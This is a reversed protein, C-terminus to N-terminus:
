LLDELAEQITSFEFAFGSELLKSPYVEQGTLLISAGEGFKLKLVFPPVKFFTPKKLAKGLAKTFAQNTVPKPAVLNFIGGDQKIIFECAKLLDKVHIWSFGQKGDGLIGGLGLKFIPLMESMAGGDGLVVGFRLISVKVGAEKAKLAESEWEKALNGLFGGDFDTSSENHVQGERYIGIASASLLWSPPTQMENIAYILHKTTKIRSDFLVKKYEKTWKKSISAGALNIVGDCGSLLKKLEKINDYDERQIKVIEHGKQEFFSVLHSGVFGSTGNIAIKM